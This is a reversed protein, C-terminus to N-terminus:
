LVEMRAGLKRMVTCFCLNRSDGQSIVIMNDDTLFPKTLKVVLTCNRQKVAEILENRISVDIEVKSTEIVQKDFDIKFCTVKNFDATLENLHKM